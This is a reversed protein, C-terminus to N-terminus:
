LEHLIKAIRASSYGDGFPNEIRAMTNYVSQDDILLEVADIIREEDSGVLRIAGADVGEQRETTDRMVLVPKHLSIAEEQIGGSDTLVLYCRALVNHFDFVDLPDILRIRDCGDLEAQAISRVKPNLHVPYLVKIERRKEVLRRIARFMHHMSDGINERRHATVLVLKSDSAWDLDASSYAPSITTRLADLGTNGTVFIRSPEKGERVLNDATVQTPAFFITALDDILQRNLEEPFPSYKKYTRLGAEVHAVPIKRYFAALAAAFSTSTDGHVLVLDPVASDFVGDIRQLVATTIDSLTQNSRMIDLDYDPVVSFAKLVPELMERHQGTVCVEVQFDSITRLEAILPCMKIGEPRTGFVVLLKSYNM